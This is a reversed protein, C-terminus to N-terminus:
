QCRSGLLHQVFVVAATTWGDAVACCALWFCQSYGPATPAAESNFPQGALLQNAAYHYYCCRSDTTFFPALALLPWRVAAGAGLIVLVHLWTVRHVTHYVAPFRM